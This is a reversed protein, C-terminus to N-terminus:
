VKKFEIVWVFPNQEWSGVGNISEWLKRFATYAEDYGKDGCDADLFYKIGNIERHTGGACTVGIIGEYEFIGESISDEESIDNLREVRVKTIELNIRSAWRPMFISPKWTFDKETLTVPGGAESEDWHWLADARYYIPYGEGSPDSFTERVWLRDGIEGFPCKFHVHDRGVLRYNEFKGWFFLGKDKTNSSEINRMLTYDEKTPQPKVIRRTMTKRGELIARVMEGNFLIPREKM